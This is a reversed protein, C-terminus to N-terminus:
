REEKVQSQALGSCRSLWVAADPRIVCIGLSIIRTRNGDGTPYHDRGAQDRFAPLLVPPTASKQVSRVAPSLIGVDLFIVNEANRVYTEYLLRVETGNPDCFYKAV